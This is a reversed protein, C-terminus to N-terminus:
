LEAMIRSFHIEEMVVTDDWQTYYANFGYARRTENADYFGEKPVNKKRWVKNYERICKKCDNTRGDKMEANPSFHALSKYEGCKRCNKFTNHIM